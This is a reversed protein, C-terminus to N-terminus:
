QATYILRDPDAVFNDPVTLPLVWSLPDMLKNKIEAATGADGEKDFKNYIANAVVSPDNLNSAARVLDGWRNGEFSTELAAETLITLGVARISDQLTFTTTSDVTIDLLASMTADDLTVPTVGARGRIGQNGSSAVPTYSGYYKKQDFNLFPAANGQFRVSDITNFEDDFPGRNILALANEPYGAFNIAEALKLYVHAARGWSFYFYGYKSLVDQDAKEIYNKISAEARYDGLDFEVGEYYQGQVNWQEILSQSASLFHFDNLFADNEQRYPNGNTTGDETYEYAYGIYSTVCNAIPADQDFIEIWDNSNLKYAGLNGTYSVGYSSTLNYKSGGADVNEDLFTKYYTAAMQYEKAWLYLDGLLLDIDPVMDIIGSGYNDVIDVDQYELLNNILVQLAQNKTYLPFEQDLDTDAMIPKDVYPLVGYNVLIQMQAWTRIRLMFVYNTLLEDDYAATDMKTMTINCNNIISFLIESGILSNDESIDHRNLEQMDDPASVDAVTVDGRLEGLMVYQLTADQMQSLVGFLASRAEIKDAGLYDEELLVEGPEVDLLSDCSSFLLSALIIYQIFKFHKKM